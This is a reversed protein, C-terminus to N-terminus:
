KSIEILVGSIIDLAQEKMGQRMKPYCLGQSESYSYAKCDKNELFILQCEQISLAKHETPSINDGSFQTRSM